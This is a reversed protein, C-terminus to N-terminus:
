KLLVAIDKNKSMDYIFYSVGDIYQLDGKLTKITFNEAPVNKLSMGYRLIDGGDMNTQIYKPLIELIKPIKPIISPDTIKEFVKSVLLHENEIRDLDGMALGTGDNNKRWRFFEEAKEGDLHVTEGKKFHIHLNQADDDYNMNNKIMIDVGGMADILSRFGEYNIMGYYNVNVNLLKEAADVVWPVGGLVNAANIKENKGNVQILTDRPISIINVKKESYKYNILMLTDTRKNKYSTNSGDGIDVGMLLINVPTNDDKVKDPKLVDSGSSFKNLYNYIEAGGYAAASAAIILFCLLIFIVNNHRKGKVLPNEEWLM